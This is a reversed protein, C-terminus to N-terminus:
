YNLVYTVGILNIKLFLHTVPYMKQLKQMKYVEFIIRLIEMFTLLLAFTDM